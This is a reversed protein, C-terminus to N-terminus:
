VIRYGIRDAARIIAYGLAPDNLAISVDSTTPMADDAPRWLALCPHGAHMSSPYVVGDLDPFASRIAQAWRRARNRPGTSIAQSAGARTPWASGLDLVDLPRRFRLLTLRPADLERDVVRTRQFAEALATPVDSAVYLVGESSIAAPEPHPDFRATALPGFRRPENWASVFPGSTRHVRWWAEHVEIRRREGPRIGVDVLAEPSAPSPLKAM